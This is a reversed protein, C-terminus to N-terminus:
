LHVTCIDKKRQWAIIYLKYSVGILFYYFMNMGRAELKIRDLFRCLSVFTFLNVFHGISYSLFSSEIKILHKHGSTQEVGASQGKECKNM